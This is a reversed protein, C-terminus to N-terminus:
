ESTITATSLGSLTRSCLAAAHSAPVVLTACDAAYAGDETEYDCPELVIDGAQAGAPVSVPGDEPAFRLYGLALVALAVLALAVIRAPTFARTARREM